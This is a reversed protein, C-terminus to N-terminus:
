KAAQRRAVKALHEGALEGGKDNDTAVFSVIDGGKLGSDFIVVPMGSRSGREDRARRAGIEDLPALAIGSVGGRWRMRSKRSRRIATTKACRAAGPSTSTSSGPPGGHAPMCAKGSCMRRERRSSRLISAIRRRRPAVATPEAAAASLRGADGRLAIVSFHKMCYAVVEQRASGLGDIGLEVVDGAQLYRPEPKMGLGVGAPTGTTIVDGPLLTMFQSVYSVLTFVDFIMNATTSQQRSEGNVTLWM